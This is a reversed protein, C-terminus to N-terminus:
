PNLQIAQDLDEIAENALGMLRFVFGRNNYASALAPDLGITRNFDELARELQGLQTYALGRNNYANSHLPDLSVARSLDDIATQLRGIQYYSTGRSYYYEAADPDLSIAEDFGEIAILPQGLDLYITGRLHQGEASQPALQIAQKLSELAKTLEGMDRYAQAQLLLAAASVVDDGVIALSTELQELAAQPNGLQIFVEALRNWLRWSHPVMQAAERYLRESQDALSPDKNLSWLRLASDASALRSRFQYPRQQVWQLNRQYTEEAVILEQKTLGGDSGGGFSNKISSDPQIASRVTLRNQYYTSVEPALSIAQDQSILAGPLDGARFRAAGGDAIVAARAYNIGKFWTVSGIGAALCAVLLLRGMLQWHFRRAIPSPVSRSRRSEHRTQQIRLPQPVGESSGMLPPLAVFVALLVWSITLDSVRAVGVMLELTRGALTALLAILVLKHITSYNQGEWLLGRVGVFFMAVFLGVSALLGLVGLEVGQHVFYNHGHAVEHPLRNDGIPPSELFYASRFLEPGYGILPRIPSLSLSDFEFWNQDAILRWSGKWIEVRNGLEGVGGGSGLATFRAEATEAASGGSSEDEFQQLSAILIITVAGAIVLTLTTRAMTRWGVFVGVMGLFAAGGLITGFWPGRSLTFIIGMLQITLVLAWLGQKWWFGASGVREKLTVTAAVLSIPITLLIVSGAFLPNGLTSSARTKGAPELLDLFDHGYHQLVAYGAVLLGVAVIAGLLRWLQPATKLHTAIVAFLLVYAVVTYASYSDQGPVDGWLSVQWSVSLVTSLLTTVLFLLAALTVWRTPQARLWDRLSSLWTMPRLRFPQETAALSFPFGSILAWEALWLGAMLGVLTRLLVIKPLEFSGIVSSGEGFSRGLFALPVLMITLLWLSELARNIWLM